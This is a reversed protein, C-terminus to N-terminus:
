KNEEQLISMLLEPYDTIIGDAKQHILFRMTEEDNITWYHIAINQQHLETILLTTDLRLNSVVPVSYSTPVQVAIYDSSKKFITTLTYSSIILSQASGYSTSVYLDPYNQVLYESIDDYATAVLVYDQLDYQGILNHLADATEFRPADADAKIEINYLISNGFTSFVEELTTLYVGQNQWESPSLDRYLYEGNQEQYEYGFNCNDYLYQYNEEWVVTDCNSQKRTNGTKNEGHLLVLVGDKTLQVDMELVDVGLNYSYTFARITNDPFVGKGGAHAMVLPVGDKALFPNEKKYKPKPVMVLILFVVLVLLVSFILIKIKQM